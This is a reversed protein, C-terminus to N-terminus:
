YAPRSIHLRGDIAGSTPARSTKPPALNEPAPSPAPTPLPEPSPSAKEAPALCPAPYIEDMLSRNSRRQWPQSRLRSDPCGEYAHYGDSWGLGLNRGLENIWGASASATGALILAVALFIPKRKHM